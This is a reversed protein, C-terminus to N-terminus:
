TVLLRLGCEEDIITRAPLKVVIGLERGDSLPEGGVRVRLTNRKGAAAIPESYVHEGAAEFVQRPLRVGNVEAEITVRRGVPLTFRLEFRTAGETNEIV